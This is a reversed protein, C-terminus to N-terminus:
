VLSGGRSVLFLFLSLWGRRGNPKEFEKLRTLVIPQWRMLVDVTCQGSFAIQLSIYGPLAASLTVWCWDEPLYALHSGIILFHNNAHQSLRILASSFIRHTRDYRKTIHRLVAPFVEKWWWLGLLPESCPVQKKKSWVTKPALATRRLIFAKITDLLSVM